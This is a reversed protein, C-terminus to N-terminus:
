PRAAPRPKLRLPEPIDLKQFIPAQRYAGAQEEYTTLLIRDPHLRAVKFAYPKRILMPMGLHPKALPVEIDVHMHGSLVALVQPQAEVLRRVAATNAFSPLYLPNHTLILTPQDRHAALEAALWELRDYRGWGSDWHLYTIGLGIFRIGHRVVSYNSPGFVKEYGPGDHNGAVALCPCKLHEDLLKKVNRLQQPQEEVAIIDGLLLVLQPRIQGNLFRVAKLLRAPTPRTWAPAGGDHYHSDALIAFTALPPDDRRAWPPPTDTRPPAFKKALERGQRDIARRIANPDFLRGAALAAVPALLVLPLLRAARRVAVAPGRKEGSETTASGSRPSSMPHLM